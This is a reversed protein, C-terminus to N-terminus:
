YFQYEESMAFSFYVLEPQIDPNSLIMTKLFKKEAQSPERVLFRKYTDLLFQDLDARMEEDSPVLVDSRNMFNSIVIEHALNKDGISEISQRIEVLENASLAKQFLNAYLISIYQDTTKQKTKEITSSTLEIPNIEYLYSDEPSSCCISLLLLLFFLLRM